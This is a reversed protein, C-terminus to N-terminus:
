VCVAQATMCPWKCLVIMCVLCVIYIHSLLVDGGALGLEGYGGGAGLLLPGLGVLVWLGDLGGGRGMWAGAPCRGVWSVVWRAPGSDRVWWLGAGVGLGLVAGCAALSLVLAGLPDGPALLGAGGGSGDWWM